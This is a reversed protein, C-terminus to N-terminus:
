KRLPSIKYEARYNLEKSEWEALVFFFMYDLCNKFDM